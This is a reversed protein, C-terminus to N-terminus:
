NPIHQKPTAVPYVPSCEPCCSLSLFLVLSRLAMTALLWPNPHSCEPHLPCLLSGFVPFWVSLCHASSSFHTTLLYSPRSSPPPTVAASLPRPDTSQFCPIPFLHPQPQILGLGPQTHILDPAPQPAPKLIETNEPLDIHPLPLGSAQFPLLPKSCSSVVLPGAAQLAPSVDPVMFRSHCWNARNPSKGIGERLRPIM